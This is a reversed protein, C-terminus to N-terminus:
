IQTIPFYRNYGTGLCVITMCELSVEIGIRSKLIHHKKHCGFVPWNQIWIFNLKDQNPIQSITDHNKSTIPGLALITM